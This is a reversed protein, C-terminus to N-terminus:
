LNFSISNFPFNFSFNFPVFAQDEVTNDMKVGMKVEM